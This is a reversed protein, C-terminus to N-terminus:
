SAYFLHGFYWLQDLILSLLLHVLVYEFHKKLYKILVLQASCCKKGQSPCFIGGCDYNKSYLAFYVPFCTSPMNGRYARQLCHVCPWLVHRFVMLVIVDVFPIYSRPSLAWSSCTLCAMSVLLVSWLFATSVVIRLENLFLCLLLHYICWTCVYQFKWPFRCRVLTSVFQGWLTVSLSFSFYEEVLLPDHKIKVTRGGKFVVHSLM